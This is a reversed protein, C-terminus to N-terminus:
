DSGTEETTPPTLATAFFVCDSIARNKSLSIPNMLKKNMVIAGTQGGDLAYATQVGLAAVNKAFTHISPSSFYPSKGNGTVVLYHLKDVQCLACRPYGQNVEGLAYYPPECQKGDEILIPGFALGFQINNEDVFAQCQEETEFTGRETLILDGNNDVFCNDVTNAYRFRTVKGDNVTVGYKRTRYFDGSSAVVANVKIAMYQTTQLAKSKYDNNVLHRRFQSPHTVKVEAMTYVYNDFVQKWCIALISEDLYYTVESGKMIEVDTKFVLEQGDLLTSAKDILWQLEAPDKTKGYCEPNPEPAVTTGDPLWFVKPVSLVSERADTWAQQFQADFIDLIAVSDPIDPVTVTSETKNASHTNTSYISSVWICGIILVVASVIITLWWPDFKMRKM